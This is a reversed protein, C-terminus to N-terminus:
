QEVSALFLQKQTRRKIVVAIWIVLLILPPVVINAWRILKTTAKLRQAAQDPTEERLLDRDGFSLKRDSAQKSMLALLDEDEAMWDLLNSFFRHGFQSVPGGRQAYEGTALDDRVFDADGIVLLTAPKGTFVPEPDKDKDDQPKPAEPAPPGAVEPQSAPQSAAVAPQEGVQAPQSAAADGAPQSAPQSAVPDGTIPGALPDKPTEEKKEPPKRPPIKKGAFFSAFTGRLCVALDFQAPAESRTRRDIKANFDRNHEEQQRGQKYYGVPDLEAPPTEAYALPSTRMWVESTVGDPIQDALKVACPWYLTPGREQFARMVTADRQLGPKLRKRLQEALEDRSNGNGLNLRSLFTAIRGAHESWDVGIPIVWYPYLLPQAMLGLQTMVPVQFPESAEGFADMLVKDDVRAGYHALMDRLRVESDPADFPVDTATCTRQEGLGYEHTDAFVVLKGGKMLYQDLAYKQRDTLRKPRVVVIAAFDDPVLKGENLDLDQVDYRGKAVEKLRHYGKPGSQQQQMFPMGGGGETGFALLGIKPKELVAVDKIAPTLTAEYQSTTGFGLLPIVQQKEGSYMIRIGQWIETFALQRDQFDQSTHPRVGLREAKKRIEEDEQPNLYQVVVKGHSMRVYEDLFDKLGLRLERYIAPLKDDASFYCEILLQGELKGLVRQTSDSLSFLGDATLDERWHYRRGLYVIQGFILLLLVVRLLVVLVYGRSQDRHMTTETRM